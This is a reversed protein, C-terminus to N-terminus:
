YHRGIFFHVMRMRRIRKTETGRKTCALYRRCRKIMTPMQDMAAELRLRMRPYVPYAEKPWAAKKPMPAYAEARRIIL